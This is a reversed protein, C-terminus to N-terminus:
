IYTPMKWVDVWDGTISVGGVHLVPNLIIWVKRVEEHLLHELGLQTTIFIEFKDTQKM